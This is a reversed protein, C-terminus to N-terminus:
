RRRPHEHVRHQPSRRWSRVVCGRSDDMIRAFGEPGHFGGDQTFAIAEELEVRRIAAEHVLEAPSDTVAMLREYDDQAFEVTMTSNEDGSM